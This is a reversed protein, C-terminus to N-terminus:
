PTAHLLALLFYTTSPGAIESLADVFAVAFSRLFHPPQPPSVPLRFHRGKLVLPHQHHKSHHCVPNPSVTSPCSSKYGRSSALRPPQNSSSPLSSPPPCSHTVLTQRQTHIGGRACLAPPCSSPLPSSLSLALSPPVYGPCTTCSHLYDAMWPPARFSAGECLGLPHNLRLPPCPARRGLAEWLAATGIPTGNGGDVGM